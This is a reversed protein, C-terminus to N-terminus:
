GNTVFHAVDSPAERGLLVGLLSDALSERGQSVATAEVVVLGASGVARSGLHVFHWDNPCGNDSSYHCMPSVAIRNRLVVDELRFAHFLSAM